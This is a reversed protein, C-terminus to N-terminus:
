GRANSSWGGIRLSCVSSKLLAFPIAENTAQHYCELIEVPCRTYGQGTAEFDGPLLSAPDTRATFELLGSGTDRGLVPIHWHVQQRSADYAAEGPEASLISPGSAAPAPFRVHIGELAAGAGQLQLEVVMRTCGEETEPWCGLSVPLFGEDSSRAQWKLLPVPADARFARSADRVELVNSTHSQKNLNPHVKYKFERSPPGLRFCVLDAKAADLVTVQLQGACLADGSLSGDARVEATTKEEMLVRVPRLPPDVPAAAASETEALAAAETEALAAAGAAPEPPGILGDGPKKRSLRMGPKTGWEAPDSAAPLWAPGVQVAMTPVTRQLPEPAGGASAGSDSGPCTPEGTGEAGRPPRSERIRQQARAAMERAADIKSLEIVRHSAEEHSDMDTYSKVEALSASGRHGFSVIEDFAFVIDLASKLVAEENVRISCCDRVVKALLRLTEQYELANSEKNTVVLLYLPGLPQYVYRVTEAEIFTHDRGSDVLKQFAGLLGELRRRTMEVFQRAVLTRGSSVLAASLVVMGELICAAETPRWL